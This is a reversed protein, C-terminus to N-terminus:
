SESEPPLVPPLQQLWMVANAVEKFPREALYALLADRQEATIVFGKTQLANAGVALNRSM